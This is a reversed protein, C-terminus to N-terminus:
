NQKENRLNGAIATWSNASSTTLDSMRLKCTISTKHCDLLIIMSNNAKIGLFSSVDEHVERGLLLRADKVRALGSDTKLHLYSIFVM